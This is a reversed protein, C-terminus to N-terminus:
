TVCAASHNYVIPIFCCLLNSDRIIMVVVLHRGEEEEEEEEEGEPSVPKTIIYLRSIPTSSPHQTPLPLPTIFELRPNPIGTDIISAPPSDFNSNRLITIVVLPKTIIM